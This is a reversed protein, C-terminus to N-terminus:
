PSFAHAINLNFLANDIRATAAQIDDQTPLRRAADIQNRGLFVRQDLVNLKAQAQTVQAQARQANAKYREAQTRSGQADTQLRAVAANADAEERPLFRHNTIKGIEIEIERLKAEEEKQRAEADNQDRKAKAQAVEVQKREGTQPPPCDIKTTGDSQATLTLKTWCYTAPTFVINVYNNDTRTASFL